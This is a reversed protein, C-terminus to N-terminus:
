GGQARSSLREEVRSICEECWELNSRMNILGKRLTMHYHFEDLPMDDPFGPERERWLREIGELASLKASFIERLRRLFHLTVQLDQQQWLMFLKVLYGLRVDAYEPPESLWSLLAAEGDPTRTYVRRDPGLDSPQKNSILLGKEELQQLTPYIQSLNATWFYALSADFTRKLEYGSAPRHLLGLLAYRLSM